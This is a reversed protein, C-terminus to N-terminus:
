ESEKVPAEVLVGSWRGFTVTYRANPELPHWTNWLVYEVFRGNTRRLSYGAKRSQLAVARRERLAQGQVADFFALRSVRVLFALPIGFFVLAIVGYEYQRISRVMLWAFRAGLSLLLLGKAFLAIRFRTSIRAEELAGHSM